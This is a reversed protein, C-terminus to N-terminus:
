SAGTARRHRHDDALKLDFYVTAVHPLLHREVRPWSFLGSTELLVPIDAAALRKALRGALEAHLCPEGGSLTVGGGSRRYFPADRSLLMLMATLTAGGVAPPPNTSIQWQGLRSTLPARM